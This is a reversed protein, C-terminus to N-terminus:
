WELEAIPGQVTKWVAQRSVGLDRAVQAVPQTRLLENVAAARIAAVQAAVARVDDQVQDVARIVGAPGGYEQAWGPDAGQTLRLLQAVREWQEGSPSPTEM